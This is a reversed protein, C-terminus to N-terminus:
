DKPLPLDTVVMHAKHHTICLPLRANRVANQGTAGCAWFVPLEGPNLTTLGHGGYSHSLDAIGLDGPLGLSVPAGHFQPYRASLLTARIADAPSLVRMSVILKGGFPGVPTTERDTEYMASVNGEDLHRLRVGARQLIAEFSFSCGLVFAVLDDAWVASADRPTEVLEGDRFVMYGGTDRAIDLDDALAPIARVGPESRGLIPLAQANARCYAEFDDAYAAPVAVLNGQMFDRAVHNTFDTFAGARIARRVARPNARDFAPASAGASLAQTM